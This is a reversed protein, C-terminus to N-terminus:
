DSAAPSTLPNETAAPQPAASRPATGARSTARPILDYAAWVTVALVGLAGLQHVLGLWLPVAALLTWIGLVAQLGIAGMLAHAHKKAVTKRAKLFFAVALGFVVYAMIRHNFQVSAIRDFLDHFRAPEGFYGEPIFRGDMLPWTNYTKGARLGAVFAGLIIQVFVAAMLVLPWRRFGASAAVGPPRMLALIQWIILGFLIFATGLHLALRYQSVDVRESLGSSVMFWGIAGQMGILAFLGWLRWRLGGTVRGRVSWWLLPLFFAMGILRGLNRHGWEWWFIEKFQDLTMGKNVLEYEPITRYKDFVEAWAADGMPPLSGMILDWETISLGSDTLRTAGGITVMIATLVAMVILWLAVPRMQPNSTTM